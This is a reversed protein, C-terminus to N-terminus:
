VYSYGADILGEKKMDNWFNDPIKHSMLAINDKIKSPKSTNLAISKVGPHSMGFLICVEAPNVKHRACVRFFRDRWEFLPRDAPDNIEVKRYNFYEGGTLFGGHFVASNIVFINRQLLEDIFAILEPPHTMITFDTALMVWDLEVHESIMKIVKWDKSGVGIARAVGREKLEGLAEYASLIDQLKKEYEEPTGASALYEDPDHVSLIEAKHEDGLLINGQEWCALIGDYSIKQIADYKLGAWAGSEFTPGPTTLPVRYWGLKNSIIIDEPRIGMKKLGNGIVELALGAGYKGATDIVVPKKIWRFWDAMIDFKEKEEPIRYLNGLFSTGFIVPPVHIGTSGITDKAKLKKMSQKVEVPVFIFTINGYRRCTNYVPGPRRIM